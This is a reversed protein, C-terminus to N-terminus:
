GAPKPPPRPPLPYVIFDPHADRKVAGGMAHLAAQLETLDAYPLELPREDPHVKAGQVFDEGSRKTMEIHAGLVHSVRKSKTFAVVRDISAKFAAFQDSPVYLRGPYLSDGSLLLRTKEDFVMIHAPQHGPTPIIDLRRGGLDYSVVQDPWDAIKFFAAVEAATLGVMTTDPRAQFETDGQHHDGHGHSHAVVLPISSRHHAKLWGEIVGDITPRVQLGGAGTDLLLARDRGFLLYLFPAEPNTKVSQRVVFTDADYRQVQMQPEAAQTGDIWPAFLPKESAPAAGPLVALGLALVAAALKM